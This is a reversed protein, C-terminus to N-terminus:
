NKKKPELSRFEQIIAAKVSTQPPIVPPIRLVTVYHKRCSKKDTNLINAM